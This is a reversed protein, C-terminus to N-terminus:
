SQAQCCALQGCYVHLRGRAVKATSAVVVLSPLGQYCVLEQWVEESMGGFNSTSIYCRPAHHCSALGQKHVTGHLRDARGLMTSSCREVGRQMCPDSHM